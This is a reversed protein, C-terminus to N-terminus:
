PPGTSAPELSLPPAPAPPASPANTCEHLAARARKFMERFLGTLSGGHLM